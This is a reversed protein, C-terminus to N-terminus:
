IELGARVAQSFLVDLGLNQIMKYIPQLVGLVGSYMYISISQRDFFFLFFNALRVVEEDSSFKM